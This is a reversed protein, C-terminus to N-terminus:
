QGFSLEFKRNVAKSFLEFSYKRNCTEVDVIEKIKHM